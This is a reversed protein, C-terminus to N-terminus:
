LMDVVTKYQSLIYGPPGAQLLPHYLRITLTNPFDTCGARSSPSSSSSIDVIIPQNTPNFPM